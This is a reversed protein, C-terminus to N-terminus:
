FAFYAADEVDNSWYLDSPGGPAHPLLHFQTNIIVTVM